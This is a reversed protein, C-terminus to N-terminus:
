RSLWHLYVYQVSGKGEQLYKKTIPLYNMKASRGYCIQCWLLERGAEVLASICIFVRFEDGYSLWILECGAHGDCKGQLLKRSWTSDSFYTANAVIRPRKYRCGSKYFYILNVIKGTGCGRPPCRILGSVTDSAPDALLKCHIRSIYGGKIFVPLQISHAYISCM